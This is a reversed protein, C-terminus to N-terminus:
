IRNKHSDPQRTTKDLVYNGIVLLDLDTNLFCRIADSPSCVIPENMVNFSTNLIVPIGTLKKFEVLIQWFKKNSSKSVTQIRATGDVHTVAPIETKYKDKVPVVFLMFPSKAMGNLEFFTCADEELVAPAFPRFAERHKIKANIRDKMDPIRPDALISRNGLARPGFEMRGQFWGVVKGAAIEMAIYKFLDNKLQWKLDSQYLKLSSYTERDNYSPGFYANTM